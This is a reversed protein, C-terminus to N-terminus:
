NIVVRRGTESSEYISLIVDVPRKGEYVDVAPATQNDLAKLFDEYQAKHGDLSFATPDQFSLNKACGSSAALSQGDVDWRTINEGDLVITGKTGSIEIRCPYGPTVCTAGEITGIAGNAYTVVAVAADEVEIDRDLTRCFSFTSTVPGMLYLLVDIGHIGQNMLAGGGDMAWTGRWGASQYYEPSRYFKMYVDGILLKGLQGNEIAAKIKQVNESFRRQCVSTLQVHNQEVADVIGSLQAKTIAMPKEVVIHKKAKAAKICLEAHTGSPTCISVIDIEESALMEELTAFAKCCQKEAFEAARATNPDFVGILKANDLKEIVGAHWNSIVGCGIIGFNYAKM